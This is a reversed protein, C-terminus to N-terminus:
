PTEKQQYPIPPLYAFHTVDENQWDQGDDHPDDWYWFSQYSDECVPHDWRREGIRFVGKHVILVPTGAVPLSDNTRFLTIRLEKSVAQGERENAGSWSSVM